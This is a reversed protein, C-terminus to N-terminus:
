VLKLKNHPLRTYAPGPTYGHVLYLFISLYTRMGLGYQLGGGASRLTSRNGIWRHAMVLCRVGPPNSISIFPATPRNALSNLLRSYLRIRYMM